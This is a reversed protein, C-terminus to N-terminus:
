RHAGHAAHILVRVMCYFGKPLDFCEAQTCNGNIVRQSTFMRFSARDSETHPYVFGFVPDGQAADM